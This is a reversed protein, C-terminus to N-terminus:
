PLYITCLALWIWGGVGFRVLVHQYLVRVWSVDCGVMELPFVVNGPYVEEWRRKMSKSRLITKLEALVDAWCMNRQPSHAHSPRKERSKSVAASAPYFGLRTRYHM